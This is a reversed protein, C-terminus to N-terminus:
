EDEYDEGMDIEKYNIKAECFMQVTVNVSDCMRKAFDSDLGGASDVVVAAIGSQIIARACDACPVHTVYLTCNSLDGSSQYIANREAHEFWFYKEPREHRSPVDDNVNRPLGNYGFSKPKGSSDMIVCGVKTSQDKSWSAIEHALQLFRKCWKNNYTDM